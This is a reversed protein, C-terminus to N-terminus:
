FQCDGQWVFCKEFDLLNNALPDKFIGFVASGSGSMSAYVAGKEYLLDKIEGIIPHRLFVSKEFDNYMLGKWEEIPRNIIDLLSLKPVAPSVSSYAEATSVTEEPKILVLTYGKLSFSIQKFENGLGTAFMPVNYVFFPCDAGLQIAYQALQADSLSLNHVENLMKLVFAADASGGGLGAGFPIAKHLRIECAPLNFKDALLQYAKYVLNNEPNGDVLFGSLSLVTKDASSPLLEIADCLAIPYFVTEINHYGDPRKSVINLGLNIKANPFKLM